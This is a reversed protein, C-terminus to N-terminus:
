LTDHGLNAYFPDWSDDAQSQDMPFCELSEPAITNQINFTGQSKSPNLNNGPLNQLPVGDPTFSTYSDHNLPTSKSFPVGPSPGSHACDPCDPQGCMPTSTNTAYGSDTSWQGSSMHRHHGDVMMTITPMNPLHPAVSTTFTVGNM